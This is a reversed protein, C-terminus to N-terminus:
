WFLWCLLVCYYMCYIRNCYHLDWPNNLYLLWWKGHNIHWCFEFPGSYGGCTEILSEGRPLIQRMPEVTSWTQIHCFQLMIWKFLAWLIELPINVNFLYTSFKRSSSQILLQTARKAFFADWLDSSPYYYVMGDDASDYDWRINNTSLLKHVCM